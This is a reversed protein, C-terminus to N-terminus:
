NSSTSSTGAVSSLSSAVDDVIQNYTRFIPLKFMSSLLSNRQKLYLYLTKQGDNRTQTLLRARINSLDRKMQSGVNYEEFLQDAHSLMGEIFLQHLQYYDSDSGEPRPARNLMQECTVAYSSLLATAWKIAAGFNSTHRPTLDYTVEPLLAIATVCSFLSTAWRIDAFHITEDFQVHNTLLLERRVLKNCASLYLHSRLMEYSIVEGRGRLALPSSINSLLTQQTETNFVNGVIVDADWYRMLSVMYADMCEPRLRDTANVFMVYDGQARELGTNRARSLGHHSQHRYIRFDINGQYTGAVRRILALTNDTSCDDVIVCEMQMDTNEQAIISELCQRVTKEDNYATLIISINTM